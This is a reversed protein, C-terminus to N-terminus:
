GLRSGPVSTRWRRRRRAGARRPRAGRGRRRRDRVDGVHRRPLRRARHHRRHQRHRGRRPPGAREARRPVRHRQPQRVRRGPLRSLRAAVAPRRAGRHSHPGPSRDRADDDRTRSTSRCLGADGGGRSRRAAHPRVRGAVPDHHGHWCRAPPGRPRGIGKRVRHRRSLAAHDLAILKCCNCYKTATASSCCTVRAASRSRM